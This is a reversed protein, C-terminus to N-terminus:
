HVLPSHHAGLAQLGADAFSSLLPHTRAKTARLDRLAAICTDRCPRHRRAIELVASVLTPVQAEEGSAEALAAAIPPLAAPGIMGFVIPLEILAADDDRDLKLAAVLPAVCGEAGLQALARWAHVPAWLPPGDTDGWHLAEDCALRTLEAAHDRRLGYTVPYDPWDAPVGVAVEGIDLLHRVPDAYDYEATLDFTALQDM